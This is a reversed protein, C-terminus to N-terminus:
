KARNFVKDYQDIIQTFRCKPEGPFYNVCAECIQDFNQSGDPNFDSTSEYNGSFVTQVARIKAEVARKFNEPKYLNPYMLTVSEMGVHKRMVAEVRLRLDEEGANSYDKKISEVHHALIKIKEVM